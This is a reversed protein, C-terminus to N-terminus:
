EEIVEQYGNDPYDNVLVNQQSPFAAPFFLNFFYNFSYDFRYILILFMQEM